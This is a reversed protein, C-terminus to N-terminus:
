KAVVVRAPRLVTDHHKYGRELESIIKGPEMGEQEQSVIADHINPDFETGPAAEIATIGEQELVAWLKREIALIGNAWDNEVLEAPRHQAGRNLDDLVPLLKRLVRQNAGRERDLRLREERKKFNIFEAASRKWQDLYEDREKTLQARETEWAARDNESAQVDTTPATTTEQETTEQENVDQTHEQANNM